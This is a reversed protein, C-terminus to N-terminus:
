FEEQYKRLTEKVYMKNSIQLRNGQFMLNNELYYSPSDEKNRVMFEQEILDMYRAPRLVTIVIDDVHTAIYDYGTHNTAKIYWLDQDARLPQFGM